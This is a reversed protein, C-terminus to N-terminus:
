NEIIFTEQVVISKTHGSKFARARVTASSTLSIPGDYIPSSPGPPTGDLTYRVQATEDPAVITVQVPNKFDSGAPKIGPPAVVPPGPLSAIWDRVIATGRQDIREHALPPMKTQELTSIRALVMSRWPDNPAIQRAGDIGLNIRAPAEILGQNALPTQWRADFDAAVGGPQHCYGCNVDLFARAREEPNVDTRELPSLSPLDAVEAARIPREFVRLRSWAILQNETSGPSNRNLQRTNIGLVGGVVPLHCKPCDDPGPFYHYSSAHGSEQLNWVVERHGEDVRDADSQDQRWKYSIGYLGDVSDRVLLRTELRKRGDGFTRDATEFHKIFVTGSPFQWEATPSFSVPDTAGRAGYPVAIWRM